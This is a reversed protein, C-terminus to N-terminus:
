NVKNFYYQWIIVHYNNQYNIMNKIIKIHCNHTLNKYLRNKNKIFKIVVKTKIKKLGEWM